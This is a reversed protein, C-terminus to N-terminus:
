ECLAVVHTFCKGFYNLQCAKGIHSQNHNGIGNVKLPLKKEQPVLTGKTKVIQVTPMILSLQTPCLGGVTHSQEKTRVLVQCILKHSGCTQIVLDRVIIKNILPIFIGLM